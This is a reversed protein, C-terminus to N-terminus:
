VRSLLPDFSGGHRDNLWFFGVEWGGDVGIPIARALQDGGGVARTGASRQAHERSRRGRGSPSRPDGRHVVLADADHVAARRHHEEDDAANLCQQQAGLQRRGVLRQQRGVQVVLDEGHVAHRHDEQEDHRHCGAEHVVQDRQLDTCPVNREWPEVRQAVPDVQETGDEHVRRPKEAAAGVTAPEVVRGVGADHERRTVADVEVGDAQLDDTEGRQDARDVQDDGHEVHSGGAHGPPADGGGRPHGQDGLKQQGEGNRDDRHGQEEQGEVAAEAGREEVAGLATIRQQPLVQEPDEAVRLHVDDHHRGEPHHGVDDRHEAALRQEAVAEDDERTDGDAEQAEAHPGWWMNAEPMPGMDTVANESAVSVM